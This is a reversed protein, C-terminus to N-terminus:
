DAHMRVLLRELFQHFLRAEVGDIVVVEGRTHDRQVDPAYILSPAANHQRRHAGVYPGYLRGHGRCARLPRASGTNWESYVAMFDSMAKATAVTVATATRPASTASALRRPPPRLRPVCRWLMAGAVGDVGAGEATAGDPAADFGTIGADGAVAAAARGPAAAAAAGDPADRQSPGM